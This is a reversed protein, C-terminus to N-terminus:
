KNEKKQETNKVNLLRGENIQNRISTLRGDYQGKVGGVVSGAVLGAAGGMAAGGLVGLHKHSLVKKVAEPHKGAIEDLVRKPSMRPFPMKKSAQESVWSGVKGVVNAGAKAVRHNGALKGVLAGAGALAAGAGVGYGIGKANSTLSGRVEERVAGAADRGHSLHTVAKIGTSVYPIGTMGSIYHTLTNSSALQKDSVGKGKFKQQEVAIKELYKNDSATKTMKDSHKMAKVAGYDGALGLAGSVAGAAMVSKGIKPVMHGIKASLIGTGLGIAGIMGTHKLEKKTEQDM